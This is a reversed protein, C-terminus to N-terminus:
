LATESPDVVFAFEIRSSTVTGYNGVTFSVDSDPRDSHEESM